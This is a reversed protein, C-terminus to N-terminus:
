ASKAKPLTIKPIAGSPALRAAVRKAADERKLGPVLLMELQIGAELPDALKAEEVEQLALEKADPWKGDAKALAQQRPKQGLRDEASDPWPRGRMDQVRVRDDALMEAPPQGSYPRMVGDIAVAAFTRLPGAGEVRVVSGKDIVEGGQNKRDQSAISQARYAM